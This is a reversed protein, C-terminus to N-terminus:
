DKIYETLNVEEHFFIKRWIEFQSQFDATDMKSNLHRQFEEVTMEPFRTKYLSTMRNLHHQRYDPDKDLQLQERIIFQWYEGCNLYVFEKAYQPLRIYMAKIAEKVSRTDFLADYFETFCSNVGSLNIDAMPGIYGYFPCPKQLNYIDLLCGGFCTSVSVFLNNRLRVNLERLYTELSKWPIIDGSTLCLGEESGHMEIHIFPKLRSTKVQRKLTALFGHLEAPNSVNHVSAVPGGMSREAKWNILQRLEEGFRDDEPMSQVIVIANFTIDPKVM